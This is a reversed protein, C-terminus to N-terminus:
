SVVCAEYLWDKETDVWHMHLRTACERYLCEGRESHDPSLLYIMMYVIRCQIAVIVM